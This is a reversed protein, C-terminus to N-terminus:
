IFLDRFSECVEFSYTIIEVSFGLISYGTTM